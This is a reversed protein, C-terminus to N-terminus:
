PFVQPSPPDITHCPTRLPCLTWPTTFHDIVDNQTYGPMTTWYFQAEQDAFCSLTEISASDRDHGCSAMNGAERQPPQPMTFPCSPSCETPTGSSYNTERTVYQGGIYMVTTNSWTGGRSDGYEGWFLLEGGPIGVRLGEPGAALIANGGVELAYYEMYYRTTANPSSCTDHYSLEAIPVGYYVHTPGLQVNQEAEVSTTTEAYRAGYDCSSAGTSSDEVCAQAPAECVGVQDGPEATASPFLAIM